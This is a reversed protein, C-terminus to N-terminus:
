EHSFERNFQQVFGPAVRVKGTMLQQLLTKFLADLAAKRREEAQIKRDMARLMDAITRQEPLPPLPLKAAKVTTANISPLPGPNSFDSINTNEFWRFLFEPTSRGPMTPVVGMMNNDIVTPCTLLRKKNTHLAAGVKPFVTTGPPFPKAKLAMQVDRNVYHNARVIHTENGPLNMDSVKIFPYEGQAAGQYKHPFGVGGRVTAVEGLRVVEWHEPVPGIETEQLRVQDAQDIPVPGYTFLHRMLSKKLERTAALVRETAEKARQVTRLVQAIARQEPLPQLPVPFSALRSKSLNPITTKNGYGGYLGLHLIAAQM